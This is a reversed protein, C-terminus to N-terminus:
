RESAIFICVAPLGTTLSGIEHGSGTATKVQAERLLQGALSRTEISAGFNDLLHENPAMTILRSVNSSVHRSPVRYETM